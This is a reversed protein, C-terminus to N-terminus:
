FGRCASVEDAEPKRNEPPRCKVVNAIYVEERALGMAEIMKTLLKGAAGVFPLGQLDEQEGPGEGIFLLRAKKNGSGFVIKNRGKSLKCKMCGQISKELEDLSRAAPAAAMTKPAGKTPRKISKVGLVDKLYSINEKVCRGRKLKFDQASYDTM